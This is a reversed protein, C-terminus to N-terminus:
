SAPCSSSRRSAGPRAGHPHPEHRVPHRDAAERARVRLPSRALRLAEPGAAARPPDAAPLDPLRPLARPGHRAAARRPVDSGQAEPLDAHLGRGPLERRAPAGERSRARARGRRAVAGRGARVAAHHRPRRLPEHGRDPLRGPYVFATDVTPINPSTMVWPLGTDEFHMPRRWGKMKVVQLDVDLALEERFLLALEGTTMGHRVALPHMGVFSRYEPDLVNGDVVDGGLPNPRDLVVLRKGDRACAQMAHLMTYNFTYYRSGVDQVDFVLADLEALM